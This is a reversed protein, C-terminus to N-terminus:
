SETVKVGTGDDFEIEDEALDNPDRYRAERNEETIPLVVVTLALYRGLIGESRLTMLPEHSFYESSEYLFDAFEDYNRLVMFKKPEAAIRQELTKPM